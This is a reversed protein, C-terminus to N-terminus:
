CLLDLLQFVFGLLLFGLGIQSFLKYKKYKLRHNEDEGIVLFGSGKENLAPSVGFFFMVVTGAINLVLGIIALIM